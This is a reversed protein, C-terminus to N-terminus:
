WPPEGSSLAGVTYTDYIELLDEDEPADTRDQTERCAVATLRVLERLGPFSSREIFRPRTGEDWFDSRLADHFEESPETLLLHCATRGPLFSLFQEATEDVAAQLFDSRTTSSWEDDIVCYMGLTPVSRCARVLQRRVSVPLALWSTLGATETLASTAAREAADAKEGSM